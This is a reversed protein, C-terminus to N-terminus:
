EAAAVCRAEQVERALVISEGGVVRLRGRVIVADGVEMLGLRTAPEGVAAVRVTFTAAEQEVPSVDVVRVAVRVRLEGSADTSSVPETDITGELLAVARGIVAM